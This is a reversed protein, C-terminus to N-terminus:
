TPATRAFRIFAWASRATIPIPASSRSRADMRHGRPPRAVVGSGVFTVGSGDPGMFALRLGGGWRSSVFAITSGDPSWAPDIDRGPDDTLRVLDSGDANVACIDDNIGGCPLPVRSAYQGTVLHAPRHHHWQGDDPSGCRLWGPGDLYLAIPGHRNSEFAIRQGDPSWSPFWDLSASNTLNVVTGATADMVVVDGNRAFTVHSGDPSWTPGEDRPGATAVDPTVM